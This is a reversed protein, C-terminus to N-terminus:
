GILQAAQRRAAPRLRVLDERMGSSDHTGDRAFSRRIAHGLAYTTCFAQAGEVPPGIFGSEAAALERLLCAGLLKLFEGCFGLGAAAALDRMRPRDITHGFRAAVASILNQQTAVVVLATMPRCPPQAQAARKAADLILRDLGGRTRDQTEGAQALPLTALADATAATGVIQPQTLGLLRGFGALFRTEADTRLRNANCICVAAEFAPNALASSALRDATQALTMEKAVRLLGAADFDRALEALATRVSQVETPAADIDSEAACLVSAFLAPLDNRNMAKNLKLATASAANQLL